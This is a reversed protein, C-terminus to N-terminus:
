WLRNGSVVLTLCSVARTTQAMWGWRPVLWYSVYPCLERLLSVQHCKADTTQAGGEAREAPRPGRLLKRGGTRSEPNLRPEPTM